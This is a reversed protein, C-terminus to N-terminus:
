SERLDLHTHTNSHLPKVPTVCICELWPYATKKKIEPPIDSLKSPVPVFTGTGKYWYHKTGTARVNSRM